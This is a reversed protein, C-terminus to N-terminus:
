RRKKILQFKEFLYGYFKLFVDLTRFHNDISLKFIIKERSSLNTKSFVTNAEPFEKFIEKRSTSEIRSVLDIKKILQGRLIDVKLTEFGDTTKFYSDLTQLVFLLDKGSKDSMTATYSGTNFQVYHYLPKDVKSIKKAKFVLRPTTIYDEGLDVGEFPHINNSIYLDKKILKNVVGPMASTNLLDLLYQRKNIFPQYAIKQTRKWEIIFDCFVIDSGNHFASNYMLEVMDKEVFDDSDINLVYQADANELATNRAAALGRNQEHKIIKVHDKRMPYEKLVTHLIEVSRDPSCDDVFIFQISSYTQGFVSHLCREIYQEVKYIPILISVDYKM